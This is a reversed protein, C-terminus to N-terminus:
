QSGVRNVNLNLSPMRSCLTIFYMIKALRPFFEAYLKTFPDKYQAPNLPNDSCFYLVLLVALKTYKYYSNTTIISVKKINQKNRSRSVMTIGQWSGYGFNYWQIKGALAFAM